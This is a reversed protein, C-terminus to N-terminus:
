PKGPGDWGMRRWPSQSVEFVMEEDKDHSRDPTLQVRYGHFDYNTGFHTDLTEQAIARVPTQGLGGFGFVTVATPENKEDLSFTIIAKIQFQYEIETKYM